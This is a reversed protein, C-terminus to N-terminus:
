FLVQSSCTSYVRKPAAASPLGRKLTVKVGGGLEGGCLSHKVISLVAKHKGPSRRLTIKEPELCYKEAHAGHVMQM